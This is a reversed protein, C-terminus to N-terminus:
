TDETVQGRVYRNMWDLLAENQARRIRPPGAISAGHSSDPLRLMEVVCNNAKLVTYFQESQEAPCRWDHESQILLTPTTCKHAHMVPSAQILTDYIEHLPGGFEAPIWWAGIDSTGHMSIWNTVPNEPVAAKFRDTQGIMWCSGYGGASIGFVGLREPDALGCDIVFDLGAMNDAYNLNGWGQESLAVSFEEGYGRSGRYNITLVAYGAGALIQSDAHFIHGACNYPGGHISLLTPYPPEDRSPILIWGEVEVEDVSPFRLNEVTPLAIQALLEGNIDTLQREGTGDAVCLYLEPPQNFTSVGYLLSHDDCSLLLCAREGMVIPEWSEAGDLAVRYIHNMGRAEVPVLASRGDSTIHIDGAARLGAPMDPALGSGVGVKLSQTRCQPTSDEQTDLVWIDTKGAFPGPRRHPAGMFAIHRNDPLWSATYVMGWDELLDRVEGTALHIIRYQSFFVDHTDPLMRSAYLISEGDPSWKPAVNVWPDDTIQLAEPNDVAQIYINQLASAVPGISDFRYVHRSVRYPRTTDPLDDAALGATFAIVRGDPSWVPGDGVGQPLRTFQQAEGGDLPILYIQPRDDRNSIFAIQRGDPSWRPNTNSTGAGTLRRAQGDELRLLWLDLHDEEAETDTRLLSYVVSRGDPSLEASHLYKLRFFDEPDFPRKESTPSM